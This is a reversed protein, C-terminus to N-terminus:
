AEEPEQLDARLDATINRLFDVLEERHMNAWTQIIVDADDHSENPEHFVLIGVASVCCGREEQRRVEAVFRQLAIAQSREELITEASM